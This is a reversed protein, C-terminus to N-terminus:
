TKMTVSGDSAVSEVASQSPRSYVGVNLGAPLIAMIDDVSMIFYEKAAGSPWTEETPVPNAYKLYSRLCVRQGVNLDMALAKTGRSLRIIRGAGETVKEAGTENPAIFIGSALLQIREEMLVVCWDERPRVKYPDYFAM